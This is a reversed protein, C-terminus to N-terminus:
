GRPYGTTARHWPSGAAKTRYSWSKWTNWCNMPPTSTPIPCNLARSTPRLLVQAPWGVLEGGSVGGCWQLTVIAPGHGDLAVALSLCLSLALEVVRVVKISDQAAWDLHLAPTNLRSEWTSYSTLPLALDWSGLALDGVQWLHHPAHPSFLM